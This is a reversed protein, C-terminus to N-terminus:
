KKKFQNIKLIFKLVQRYTQVKQRWNHVIGVEIYAYIQMYLCVSKM